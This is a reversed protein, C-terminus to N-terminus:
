SSFLLFEVDRPSITGTQKLGIKELLRISAQNEETTIGLVSTLKLDQRGYLMIANCAEIMFGKKEYEPLIAFGIDPHELYDRQVFGCIGVPYNEKKLYVIYLGFGNTEYSQILSNNIYNVADELTNISRDGIYKIWTPSNMLTVFFPADEPTAEAITLRETQAIERNGM